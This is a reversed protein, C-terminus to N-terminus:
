RKRKKLIFSGIYILCGVFALLSIVICIRYVTNPFYSVSTIASQNAMFLMGYGNAVFKTAPVNAQWYTGYSFNYTLYSTKINQLTLSDPVISGAVPLQTPTPVPLAIRHMSSLSTRVENTQTLYARKPVILLDDIVLTTAKPESLTLIVSSIKKNLHISGLDSWDMPGTAITHRINNNGITIGLHSPFNVSVAKLLVEYTGASANFPVQMSTVKKIQSSVARGSTFIDSDALTIQMKYPEMNGFLKDDEWGASLIDVDNSMNNSLSEGTLTLVPNPKDIYLDQNRLVSKNVMGNNIAQNLLVVPRAIGEANFNVIDAFNGVVFIPKQTSIIPSPNQLEFLYLDKTKYMLKYPGISLQKLAEQSIVKDGPDTISTDVLLYKIGLPALVSPDYPLLGQQNPDTFQQYIYESFQSSYSDSQNNSNAIPISLPTLMEWTINTTIPAASTFWSYDQISQNNPLVLLRYENGDSIQTNIYRQMQIYEHPIIIGQLFSFSNAPFQSINTFFIIAITAVILVAQLYLPIKKKISFLAIILALFLCVMGLFRSPDRFYHMFFINNYVWTSQAVFPQNIGKACFLGIIILIAFLWKSSKSFLWLVFVAIFPLLQIIQIWLPLDLNCFNVQLQFLNIVQDCVGDSKVTGISFYQGPATFIHEPFLISPVFSYATLVIFIGVSIAYFILLNKIGETDKKLLLTIFHAVSFITTFILFHPQAILVISAVLAYSISLVFFLKSLRKTSLIKLPIIVLFPLLAYVVNLQWFGSIMRGVIWANGAYLLAGLIVWIDIQKILRCALIFLIFPLLFSVIFYIDAWWVPFITQLGTMAALIPLTRIGANTGWIFDSVVSTPIGQNYIGLGTFVSVINWVRKLLFIFANSSVLENFSIIWM